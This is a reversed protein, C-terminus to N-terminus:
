LEGRQKMEIELATPAGCEQILYYRGHNYADLRHSVDKRGRKPFVQTMKAQASKLTNMYETWKLGHMEAWLKVVGVNEITPNKRGQNAAGGRVFYGEVIVHDVPLAKIDWKVLFQRLDQVDGLALIKDENQYCWGSAGRGTEGGPDVSLVFTV